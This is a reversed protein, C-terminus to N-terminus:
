MITKNLQNNFDELSKFNFDSDLKKGVKINKKIGQCIRITKIGLEKAAIFDNLPDNGVYLTNKSSINFFDLCKLFPITSNKSKTQIVEIISFYKEFNSLKIKLLQEWTKGSTIIGLHYNKNLESLITHVNSFVKPKVEVDLYYDVVEKVSIKQSIDLQNLADDVKKPYDFGHINIINSIKEFFGSVNYKEQLYLSSKEWKDLYWQKESILTDDLDFLILKIKQPFNNKYM